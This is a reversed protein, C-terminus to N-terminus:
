QDREGIMRATTRRTAPTPKSDYSQHLKRRRRRAELASDVIKAIPQQPKEPDPYAGSVFPKNDM